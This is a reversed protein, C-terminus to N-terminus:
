HPSLDITIAERIAEQESPELDALVELLEAQRPQGMTMRYLSTREILEKLRGNERSMPLMPVHREIAHEGPFVWWPNIDGNEGAALTFARSWVDDGEVTQLSTGLAAAVNKRVAHGKYRHVRGERQELDVPNGPLNWHVIAHAYHHFDLGEQGVSTSVLVFPRFPSNFASRVDVPNDGEATAGRAQGFRMAFHTRMMQHTDDEQAAGYTDVSVRGDKLRLVRSAAEVIVGLPHETNPGVRLQEPLLHFWEDLVSSLGGDICHRLLTQWYDEDGCASEMVLHVAEPPNLQSRFAWTLQAAAAQLDWFPLQWGFRGNVRTLARLLAVGPAGISLDTLVATLDEPPRGWESIPLALFEDIRRLHEDLGASDREAGYWAPGAMENLGDGDDPELLYQALAYWRNSVPGAQSAQALHPEMAERIRYEAYERVESLPLPLPRGLERAIAVPDGLEALRRCPLMLALTTYREDQATLALRNSTLRKSYPRNPAHHRREFEYSTMAAVAKPVVTWSSFILRKTFAAAEAYAGGLETQPLSPPLWLLDFASHKDLDDLLWRLRGNRPDVAAYQEIEYPDLMHPGTLAARLDGDDRELGDKILEKKIKYEDMFNFLYPASKWYEVMSPVDPLVQAVRDTAIWAQVDGPTLTCTGDRADRLMGDRNPTAALRETRVMVSQLITQIRDRTGTLHTAERNGLLGRRLETLLPKLTDREHRREEGLLFGVTREFGDYHSEDDEISSLMKYPTASLLLIRANPQAFLLRALEADEGGGDIISTFRQFEDLIILDPDLLQICAEALAKRLRSILAMHQGCEAARRRGDSLDIFHGDLGERALVKRFETTVQPPMTTTKANHEIRALEWDFSKTDLRLMERARARGMIKKGLVDPQSLLHFLMAREGARGRAQGFRLSTDPTFAVLNVDTHELDGLAAPLM